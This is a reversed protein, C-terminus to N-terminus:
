GNKSSLTHMHRQVHRIKSRNSAVIHYQTHQSNRNNHPDSIQIQNKCKPSQQQMPESNFGPPNERFGVKPRHHMRPDLDTSLIRIFTSKSFQSSPQEQKKDRHTKELSYIYIYQKQTSSKKSHSKAASFFATYTIVNIDYENM